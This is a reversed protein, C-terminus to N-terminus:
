TSGSRGFTAGEVIAELSLISRLEWVGPELRGALEKPPFKAPVLLAPVVTLLSPSAHSVNLPRPSVRPPLLVFPRPIVCLAGSCTGVELLIMRVPYAAQRHSRGGSIYQLCCRTTTFSSRSFSPFTGAGRLKGNPFNNKPKWIGEYTGGGAGSSAGDGSTHAQQVQCNREKSMGWRAGTKKRQLRYSVRHVLWRNRM